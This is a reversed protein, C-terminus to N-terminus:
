IELEKHWRGLGGVAGKTVEALCAVYTAAGAGKCVICM